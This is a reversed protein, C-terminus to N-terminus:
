LVQACNDRQQLRYVKKNIKKQMLIFKVSVKACFAVSYVDYSYKPHFSKRFFLKKEQM